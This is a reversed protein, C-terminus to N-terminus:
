QEGRFFDTGKNSQAPFSPSERAEEVGQEFFRLFRLISPKLTATIKEKRVPRAMRTALTRNM